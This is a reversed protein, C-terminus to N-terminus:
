NSITDLSQEAVNADMVFAVYVTPGIRFFAPGM